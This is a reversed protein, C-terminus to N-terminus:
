RRAVPDGLVRPDAGYVSAMLDAIGSNGAHLLLIELELAEFPELYIDKTTRQDAHGLLLRMLDWTSGFEHRLDRLEEGDLHAFKKDFLLRGVSFWRLACSHRLMHAAGAFGELGLRRLRKNAETFTHEWGHPDRPMGDENLWLAAPELGQPTERLLLRRSEPGLSDLSVESVRGDQAILRVRREPLVRSLLRAGAMREYRGGTQARRVARAREGEGYSLVSLLSNRPMWYKRAYDGKACQEAMHCTYFGRDPDDPPLEVLLLSGGEELRLATGYLLDGLAGNRQGNRGRWGPDEDGELTLGLLGCDRYREYGAPDFWKVDRDRKAKPDTVVKEAQTGDWRRGRTRRTRIPNPVQFEAAAWVYFLRINTLNDSYTGSEVPRPNRGDQMRWVKFAEVVTSEVDYWSREYAWLFNLWVVLSYAYKAWTKRGLGRIEDSDFWGNVRLDPAGLPDLLFPQGLRRPRAMARELVDWHRLVVPNNSGLPLDM